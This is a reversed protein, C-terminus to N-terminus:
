AKKDSRGDKVVSFPLLPVCVLDIIVPILFAVGIGIAGFQNGLVVFLGVTIISLLIYFFMGAVDDVRLKAGCESCRVSFGFGALVLKTSSLGEQHCYTCKKKM